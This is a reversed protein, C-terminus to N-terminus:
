ARGCGGPQNECRTSTRDATNHSICEVHEFVLIYREALCGGGFGFFVVLLSCDVAAATRASIASMLILCVEFRTKIVTLPLTAVVVGSRAAFGAIFAREPSM